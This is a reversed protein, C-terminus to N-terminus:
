ENEELVGGVPRKVTHLMRGSNLGLEAAEQDLLRKRLTEYYALVEGLSPFSVSQGGANGSTIYDTPDIQAILNDILKLSAKIRGMGEILGIIYGDSLKLAYSPWEVGDFYKYDGDGTTYATNEHPNDPLKEVYVFDATVPFGISRRVEFIENLNDPIM